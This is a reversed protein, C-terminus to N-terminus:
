LEAEYLEQRQKTEYALMDEIGYGKRFGGASSKRSRPRRKETKQLISLQVGPDVDWANVLRFDEFGQNGTIHQRAEEKRRDREYRAQEQLRIQEMSEEELQLRRAAELEMQRRREETGAAYNYYTRTPTRSGMSTSEWPFVPRGKGSPASTNDGNPGNPGDSTEEIVLPTPKIQPHAKRPDEPLDWANPYYMDPLGVPEPIIAQLTVVGAAAAGAPLRYRYDTLHHPNTEQDSTSQSDHTHHYSINDNPDHRQSGPEPIEPVKPPLPPPQYHYDTM